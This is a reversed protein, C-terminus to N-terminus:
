AAEAPVRPGASRILLVRVQDVIRDPNTFVDAATFRLLRIGAALLKNQRRNDEVLSTRHVAGDYEIGLKQEPYYLDPRGLFEGDDDYLDVQALPRPLGRSVLVMRLRSEMASEAKPETLEIVRRLRAVGRRAIVEDAFAALNKITTLGRHTAADSLTVVEPDDVDISLDALTREVRTYTFRGNSIVHVPALAARRIRM